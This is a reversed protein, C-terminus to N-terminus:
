TDVAFFDLCKDVVCVYKSALHKCCLETSSDDLFKLRFCKMKRPMSAANCSGNTANITELNCRCVWENNRTIAM